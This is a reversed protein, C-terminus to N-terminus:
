PPSRRGRLALAAARVREYGANGLTRKALGLAREETRRRALGRGRCLAAYADLDTARMIAVRALAYPDAGERNIGPRSTSVTDYGIERALEALRRSWRGGPCAFHAVPRNTIAELRAKSGALEDRMRAPPLDPLYSHTLAHSGIEFGSESLQRVQDSTMFGPRGVFDLTVYFTAGFGAETLLPAAVVLDSECGDDFTIVLDGDAAHSVSVGRAGTSRLHAIQAEFGAACVVYRVYGPEARCLARGPRQLEHYMLHLAM